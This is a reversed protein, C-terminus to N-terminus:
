FPLMEVMVTGCRRCAWLKWTGGGEKDMEGVRERLTIRGCVPCYTQRVEAITQYKGQDTTM